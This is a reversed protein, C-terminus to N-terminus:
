QMRKTLYRSQQFILHNNFQYKCLLSVQTDSAQGDAMGIDSFINRKWENWPGALASSFADPTFSMVLGVFFLLIPSKM